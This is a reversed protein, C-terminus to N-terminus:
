NVTQTLPPSTSGTYNMSGGYVATITHSGSALASTAFSAKGGSLSRTGLTTAGDMFTVSGTPTGSTAPTVTATFTVSTGFTSPNLSSVVATTTGAQNVTQSLAPSTSGIFNSTGAYVATLSDTGVPLTSTTISVAGSSLSKSTIMTAGNMFTVTGTPVAGTPSTVTVSLTVPQGFSSPNASSTIASTTTSVQNVTQTFAPSTSGVFNSTGAYVATISDTGAPTKTTVFNAVGSSNLGVSGIVATGSKFIVSGNPILGTSSTVSASYTVSQGYTSPNLTSTIASTTTSAQNVTQTLVPSTSGAFNSNGAYVATISDTGALTKTTNLTAIGSANLAASGVAATGNKFTVTGNPIIGTSSTVSATYTVSQGYTSPNLSSTVASTTTSTQSVTETLVPSTSTAYNSTGGYVATISDTGSPTKTTTLTGVGSSNLAVSGINTAGSKFTMSGNPTGFASTVSASYTVSQGYMSPNLSTTVASTTTALKNVVQTLVPSTSGAFTSDGGYVATISYTGGSLTSSSYTASGGSLTRTALTNTGNKFTVSGTPTGSTAPAATATFTVLQGFNSPNLSSVVATTTGEKNVTQMLISSTSGIFSTDGGYTATISHTGIALASTALTAVGGGLTGTGLTTAGDKFTVTGTPTGSSAPSVTATFTVSQQFGSPNVSSSVTTTTAQKTSATTNLNLTDIAFDTCGSSDQPGCATLSFTVSTINAGSVDQMGIYMADGSADSTESFTGLLTTGNFAQIQVTFQGPANAQVFAGAGSVSSAFTFTVPGNGSNGNDSTWILSDGATLAAGGEWSCPTAVCDVSVISNPGALSVTIGLGGTSTAAFSAALLTQDAGLQSWSVNDNAGQGAQSTINAMSDAQAGAAALCIMAVVFGIRHTWVGIRGPTAMQAERIGASCHTQNKMTYAQAIKRPMLEVRGAPM